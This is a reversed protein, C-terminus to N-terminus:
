GIKKMLNDKGRAIQITDKRIEIIQQLLNQALILHNKGSMEKMYIKPYFHPSTHRYSHNYEQLHLL